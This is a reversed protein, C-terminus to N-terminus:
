LSELFMNLFEDSTNINELKWEDGILDSIFDSWADDLDNPTLGSKNVLYDKHEKYISKVVDIDDLYRTFDLEPSLKLKINM